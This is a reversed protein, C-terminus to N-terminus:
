APYQMMHQSMVVCALGRDGPQDTKVVCMECEGPNCIMEMLKVEGSLVIEMNNCAGMGGCEIKEIELSHGGFQTNVFTFTTGRCAAAGSCKIGGLMAIDQTQHDLVLDIKSGKCANTAACEFNFGERPNPVTFAAAGCPAVQGTVAAAECKYLDLFGFVDSPGPRLTPPPTPPPPIYVPWTPLPATRPNLPAPVPVPVPVPLPNPKVPNPAIPQIPQIPDVPIPAGPGPGPATARSTPQATVRVNRVPPPTPPNFGIPAPRIPPMTPANNIVPPTPRPTPPAIYVPRPTPPMVPKFTPPPPVPAATTPRVPAPTM